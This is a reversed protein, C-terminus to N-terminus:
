GNIQNTDYAKFQVPCFCPSNELALGMQSMEAELVWGRFVIVLGMVGVKIPNYLYTGSASM